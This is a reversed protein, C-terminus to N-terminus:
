EKPMEYVVVSQEHYEISPTQNQAQYAIGKKPKLYEAIDEPVDLNRFIMFTQCLLKQIEDIIELCRDKTPYEGFFELNCEVCYAEGSERFEKMTHMEKDLACKKYIGFRIDKALSFREKNQSRVWVEM